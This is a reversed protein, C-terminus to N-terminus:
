IEKEIFLITIYHEKARIIVNMTNSNCIRLFNIKKFISKPGLNQSLCNIHYLLTKEVNSSDLFTCLEAFKKGLGVLYKEM